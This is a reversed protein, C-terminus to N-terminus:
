PAAEKNKYKQLLLLLLAQSYTSLKQTYTM